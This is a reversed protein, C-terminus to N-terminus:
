FCIRPELERLVYIPKEDSTEFGGRCLTVRVRYIKGWGQENKIKCARQTHGRHALTVEEDADVSFQLEYGEEQLEDFPPSTLASLMVEEHPHIAQNPVDCNNLLLKVTPHSQM